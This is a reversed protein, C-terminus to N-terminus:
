VREGGLHERLYGVAAKEVKGKFAGLVVGQLADHPVTRFLFDKDDLDTLVPSTSASTRSRRSVTACSRASLSRRTATSISGCDKKQDARQGAKCVPAGAACM